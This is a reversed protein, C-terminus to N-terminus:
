IGEEDLIERVHALTITEGRSPLLPVGNRFRVEPKEPVSSAQFGRRALDSIVAGASRKEKAAMEKATQLVDADIDLTTRM